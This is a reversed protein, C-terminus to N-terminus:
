INSIYNNSYQSKIAFTSRNTNYIDEWINNYIYDNNCLFTNQLLLYIKGDKQIKQLKFMNLYEKVATLDVKDVAEFLNDYELM